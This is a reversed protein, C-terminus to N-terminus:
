KKTQNNPDPVSYEDVPEMIWNVTLLRTGAFYPVPIAEQNSSVDRPDVNLLRSWDTPLNQGKKM